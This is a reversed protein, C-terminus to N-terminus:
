EEERAQASRLLTVTSTVAYENALINKERFFFSFFFSLIGRRSIAQKLGWLAAIAAAAPASRISSQSFWAAPPVVGGFAQSRCILAAAAAVAAAPPKSFLSFFIGMKTM